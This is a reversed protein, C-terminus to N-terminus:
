REGLPHCAGRLHGHCAWLLRVLVCSQPVEADVAASAAARFLVTGAVWRVLIPLVIWSLIGFDRILLYRYLLRWLDVVRLPMRGSCPEEYSQIVSLTRM